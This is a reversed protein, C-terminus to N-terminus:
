NSPYGTKEKHAQDPDMPAAEEPESTLPAAPSPPMVMCGTGAGAAGGSNIGVLTGQIFIGAPNINIFNGGVKMTLMAGAEIVM